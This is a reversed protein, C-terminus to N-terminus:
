SWTTVPRVPPDPQRAPEGAKRNCPGCTAMLYRRDDGTVAKGLTHHVTNAVGACRRVEAKRTRPNLVAWTGEYALTCRGANTRANEDLVEQRLKRWATSSGNKWGASM